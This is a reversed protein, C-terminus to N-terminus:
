CTDSDGGGGPHPVVLCQHVAAGTAEAPSPTGPLREELARLGALFNKAMLGTLEAERGPTSTSARRRMRRLTRDGHTIPVVRM